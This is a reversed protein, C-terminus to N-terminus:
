ANEGTRPWPKKVIKMLQALLEVHARRLKAEQVMAPDNLFRKLEEIQADVGKRM